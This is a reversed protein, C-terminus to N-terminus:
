PKSTKTIVSCMPLTKPPNWWLIARLSIPLCGRLPLYLPHNYVRSSSAIDSAPNCSTSAYMENWWFVTVYKILVLGM